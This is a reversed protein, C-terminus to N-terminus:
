SEGSKHMQGASFQTVCRVQCDNSLLEPKCFEALCSTLPITESQTSPRPLPLSLYMFPDFKVSRHDCSKCRLVNRLQGQFIDVIISRNRLLYYKWSAIAIELDPTNDTVTEDKVNPKKSVRNLDEHLGDLLFALLEQSDHQSYGAFQIYCKSLTDKFSRPNIPKNDGNKWMLNMLTGFDAVLAGGTGLPNDRNVEDTWSYGLFYDLLPVTNALCQLSSNLFCTNGLNKLGILGPNTSAQLGEEIARRHVSRYSSKQFTTNLGSYNASPTVPVEEM